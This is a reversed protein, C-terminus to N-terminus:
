DIDGYDHRLQEKLDKLEAHSMNRATRKGGTKHPYKSEIGLNYYMVIQGISMKWLLYEKTAWPYLLAM